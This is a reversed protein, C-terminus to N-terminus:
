VKEDTIEEVDTLEFGCADSWASGKNWAGKQWIATNWYSEPEDPNHRACAKEMAEAHSEAEVELEGYAPLLVEAKVLFKPM